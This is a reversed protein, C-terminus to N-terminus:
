KNNLKKLEKDISDLKRLLLWNQEIQAQALSIKANDEAKSTLGVLTTGYLNYLISKAQEKEEFSLNELGLIKMQANLKEIKKAEKDEKSGFLGM